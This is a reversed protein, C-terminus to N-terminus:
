ERDLIIIDKLHDPRDDLIKVLPESAINIGVLDISFDNENIKTTLDKLLTKKNLGYSVFGLVVENEKTINDM